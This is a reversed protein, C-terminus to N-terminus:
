RFGACRRVNRALGHVEPTPWKGFRQSIGFFRNLDTRVEQNQYQDHHPLQTDNCPKNSRSLTSAEERSMGKGNQNVAQPTVTSSTGNIAPARTMTHTNSSASSKLTNITNDTGSHGHLIKKAEAQRCNYRGEDKPRRRTRRSIVIIAIILIIAIVASLAALGIIIFLNNGSLFDMSSATTEATTQKDRPVIVALSQNVLIHLTGSDSKSPAGNDKVTIGLDYAEKRALNLDRKAFIAGSANHINFLGESNGGTIRYTLIKNEGQDDDHALIQTVQQGRKLMGPVQVSSNQRSPFTLVPSHDNRDNIYITVSASSSQSPDNVDTAIVVMRYMAVRETDLSALTTIEGTQEDIDFLDRVAPDSYEPAIRMTFENYPPEDRDFATIKGVSVYAPENEFVGLSYSPQTFQPAEDNVDLIRIAIRATSHLQPQGQDFAMVDFRILGDTHLYDERNFRVKATLIGTVEDM